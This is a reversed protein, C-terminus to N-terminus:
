GGSTPPADSAAPPTEAEPACHVLRMPAGRGHGPLYGRPRPAATAQRTTAGPLVVVGARGPLATRMGELGAVIGDIGIARIAEPSLGVTIGRLRRCEATLQMLLTGVRDDRPAHASPTGDVVFESVAVARVADLNLASLALASPVSSTENGDPRDIAHADQCLADLDLLLGCGTRGALASLFAFSSELSAPGNHFGSGNSVLVSAGLFDQLREVREVVHDLLDPIPTAPAELREAVWEFVCQDALSALRRARHSDFADASTLGLYNGHVAVRFRETLAPAADDGAADDLLSGTRVSLFDLSDPHTALLPELADHHSLGLNQTM